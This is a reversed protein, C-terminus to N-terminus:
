NNPLQILTDNLCSQDITLESNVQPENNNLKLSLYDSLKIPNSPQSSCFNFFLYIFENRKRRRKQKQILTEDFNICSNYPAKLLHWTRYYFRSSGDILSEIIRKFM